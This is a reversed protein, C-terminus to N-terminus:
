DMNKYITTPLVDSLELLAHDHGGAYDIRMAPSRLTGTKDTQLPITLTFRVRDQQPLALLLTGSHAAAASQVLAIGLGLGSTGDQVSPVRRYRFFLTGLQESSFNSCTNEVSFQLRKENCLLKVAVASDAPSYKFANSLLNFVTRELMDRDALGYYHGDCSDFTLTRGGQAFLEQAAYVAEAFVGLLDLTEMGRTRTTYTAADSMNGVTRLLQLLNKNYQALQEEKRPTMNEAKDSLLQGSLAFINSLPERLNQSAVSLAQLQDDATDPLLHFVDCEQSHIVAAIMKSQEVQLSLSLSGGNFSRYEDQGTLLLDYVSSNETIQLQLAPQNAAIIIGDRVLFVPHTFMHLMGVSSPTAEM